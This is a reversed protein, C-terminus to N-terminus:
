FFPKQLTRFVIGVLNSNLIQNMEVIKIPLIDNDNYKKSSQVM